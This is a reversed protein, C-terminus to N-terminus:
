WVVEMHEIRALGGMMVVRGQEVRLTIHKVRKKPIVSRLESPTLRSTLQGKNILGPTDYVMIGDPLRIKLFDLTTGPLNSVTAQPNTSSKKHKKGKKPRSESYELLRNIFSSKGVNATGMVYIREGHSAALATVKELVGGIGKGTECSILHIDSQRLIGVAAQKNSGSGIERSRFWGKELYTAKDKEDAEKPSLFGCHSKTASYIWEHVRRLVCDSPLLDVKNAAIIVPNRGAIESLNDLLSGEVDFMDVLCLVVAKSKRIQSLLDAFREPTLLEHDSWGPRLHEEVDGYTQLRYCRRCISMSKADDGTKTKATNAYEKKPEKEFSRRFEMLDYIPEATVPDYGYVVSKNSDEAALIESSGRTSVCDEEAVFDTSEDEPSNEAADGVKIVGDIVEQSTGAETLIDVALPSNVAIGAVDLLRVAEQQQKILVARNKHETFREKSIYGPSDPTKSQFPTGCGSCVAPNWELFGKIKNSRTRLNENLYDDKYKIKKTEKKQKDSHDKRRSSQGNIEFIEDQNLPKAVWNNHSPVGTTEIELDTKLVWKEEGTVSRDSSFLRRPILCSFTKM